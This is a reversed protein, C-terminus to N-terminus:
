EDRRLESQYARKFKKVFDEIDEKQLEQAAEDKQIHNNVLTADKLQGVLSNISPDSNEESM